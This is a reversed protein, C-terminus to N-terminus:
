TDDHEPEPEGHWHGPPPEFGSMFGAAGPLGAAGGGRAWPVPGPMTDLVLNQARNGNELYLGRIMLHRGDPRCQSVRLYSKSVPSLSLYSTSLRLRPVSLCAIGNIFHLDGAGEAYSWAFSPGWKLGRITTCPPLLAYGAVSTPAFRRPEAVRPFGETGKMGEADTIM